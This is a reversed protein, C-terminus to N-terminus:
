RPTSTAPVAAWAPEGHRPCQRDLVRFEYRTGPQDIVCTCPKPERRASNASTLANVNM